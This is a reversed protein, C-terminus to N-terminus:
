RTKNYSGYAFMTGFCVGLSFFVQTYADAFLTANVDGFQQYVAPQGEAVPLPFPEGGLYWGMGSGEVTSNLGAFKVVFIILLIFRLPVTIIAKMEILKPGM